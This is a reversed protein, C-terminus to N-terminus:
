LMPGPLHTIPQTTALRANALLASPEGESLHSAPAKPTPARPPSNFGRETCAWTTRKPFQGVSVKDGYDEAMLEERLARTAESEMTSAPTKEVPVACALGVRSWVDGIAPFM